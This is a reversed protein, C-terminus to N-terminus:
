STDQKLSHCDIFWIMHIKATDVVSLFGGIEGWEKKM